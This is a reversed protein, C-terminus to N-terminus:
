ALKKKLMKKLIEEHLKAFLNNLVNRLKVRMGEEMDSFLNNIIFQYSKCLNMLVHVCM